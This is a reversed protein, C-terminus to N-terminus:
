QVVHYWNAIVVLLDEHDIVGNGDVDANANLATPIPSPTAELIMTPTPTPDLNPQLTVNRDDRDDGEDFSAQVVAVQFGPAAVRIEFDATFEIGFIDGEEACVAFQLEYFGANLSSDSTSESIEVSRPGHFGDGCHSYFQVAGLNGASVLSGTVTANSLPFGLTDSITGRAKLLVMECDDYDGCSGAPLGKLQPADSVIQKAGSLTFDLTERVDGADFTAVLCVPTFGDAAVCVDFDAAFDLPNDACVIFQLEYFGQSPDATTTSTSSESDQARHLGMGCHEFFEIANVDRRRNETGIVAAGLVPLGGQDRVNGRVKLIVQECGGYDGCLIPKSRAFDSLFMSWVGVSVFVLFHSFTNM